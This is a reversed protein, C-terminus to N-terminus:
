PLVTAHLLAIRWEPGDRRFIASEAWHLTDSSQENSLIARKHYTMWAFRDSVRVSDDDFTYTIHLDERQLDVIAKILSDTNWFLGNELRSYDPTVVLRIAATDYETIARFFSDRISKIKSKQSSPDDDSQCACFVLLLLLLRRNM